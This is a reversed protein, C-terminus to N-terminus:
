VLHTGEAPDIATVRRAAVLASLVAIFLSASVAILHHSIELRCVEGTVLFTGGLGSNIAGCAGMFFFLGLAWGLLAIAVAQVVPFSMAYRRSLGWLRLLSLEYRKRLVNSTLSASFALLYGIVSVGAIIAFVLGLNRDLGLIAEIEALNAHVRLGEAALRESLPRVAEIDKAYLRFNRIQPPGDPPERGPWDYAEVSYGNRWDEFHRLVSPEILAGRNNWLSLDVLGTVRFTLRVIESRGDLIREALATVESGAELNLETALPTSLLIEDPAPAAVGKPLFPDGAGSALVTAPVAKGGNEDAAMFDLNAALPAVHPVLFGVNPDHALEELWVQEFGGTGIVAIQRNRPVEELGQTLTTTVGNKLGYLILLPGLIASLALVQCFFAAKEHWLDALALNGAIKLSGAM